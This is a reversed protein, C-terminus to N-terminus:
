KKYSLLENAIKVLFYASLIDLAIYSFMFTETMGKSFRILYATVSISTSLTALLTIWLVPILKPNVQNDSNIGESNQIHTVNTDNISNMVDEKTTLFGIRGKV